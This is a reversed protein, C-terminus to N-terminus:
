GTRAVEALETRLTVDPCRGPAREVSVLKARELQQLGRYVAQRNLGFRKTTTATLHVTTSKTLGSLFWLAIGVHLARGRLQGAQELWWLPIPGKLFLKESRHSQIPLAKFGAVRFAAIDM